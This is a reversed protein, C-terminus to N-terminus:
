WQQSGTGYNLTQGSNVKGSLIFNIGSLNQTNVTVNQVCGSPVCSESGQLLVAVSHAGSKLGTITYNGDATSTSTVATGDLLIKHQVPVSGDSNQVTGSIEYTGTSRILTVNITRTQVGTTSGCAVSFTVVSSDGPNNLGSVTFSTQVNKPQNTLGNQWLSASVTVPTTASVPFTQCSNDTITNLGTWKSTFSMADGAGYVPETVTVSTNTDNASTLVQTRTDELSLTLQPIPTSSRELSFTVQRYSTVGAADTCGVKFSLSTSVGSDINGVVIPASSNSVPLNTQQDQWPESQLLAGNTPSSSKVLCSSAGTASWSAPVTYSVPGTTADYFVVPNTITVSPNSDTASVGAANFTVSPGTGLARTLNVTMTRKVTASGTGCTLNFVISSTVGQAINGLTLPASTSSLPQNSADSWPLSTVTVGSAKSQDSKFVCSNATVNQAVWSADLSTSVPAASNGAPLSVTTIRNPNTSDAVISNVTMALTPNPPAVVTVSYTRYMSPFNMGRMLQMALKDQCNYPAPLFPNTSGKAEAAICAMFASTFSSEKVTVVYTGPNNFVLQNNSTNSDGTQSYTYDVGRVGGQVLVTSKLPEVQVFPMVYNVAKTPFVQNYGLVTGGGGRTYEQNLYSLTNSSSNGAAIKPLTVKPYTTTTWTATRCNSGSASATGPYLASAYASTAANDKVRGQLNGTYVWSKGFSFSYDDDNGDIYTSTSLQGFESVGSRNLNINVPTGISTSVSNGTIGTIDTKFSLYTPDSTKEPKGLNDNSCISYSDKTAGTTQKTTQTPNYNLCVHGCLPVGEDVYLKNTIQGNFYGTYFGSYDPCILNKPWGGSGITAHDYFSSNVGMAGNYLFTDTQTISNAGEQTCNDPTVGQSFKMYVRFVWQWNVGSTDTCKVGISRSTTYSTKGAPIAAVVSGLLTFGSATTPLPVQSDFFGSGTPNGNVVSGDDMVTQTTGYCSTPTFPAIAKWGVTLSVDGSAPLNIPNSNNNFTNATSDLTFAGNIGTGQITVDLGGAAHAVQAPLFLGQAIVLFGALSFVTFWINTQKFFQYLSKM